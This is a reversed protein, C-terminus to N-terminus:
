EFSDFYVTMNRYPKIAFPFSGLDLTLTMLFLYTHFTTSHNPCDTLLGPVLWKKLYRLLESL